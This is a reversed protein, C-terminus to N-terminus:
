SRQIVRQETIQQQVCTNFEKDFLSKLSEPIKGTNYQDRAYVVPRENKLNEQSVPFRIEHFDRDVCVTTCPNFLNIYCEGTYYAAHQKIANSVKRCNLDSPSIKCPTNPQALIEKASLLKDRVVILHYDMQFKHQFGSGDCGFVDDHSKRNYYYDKSPQCTDIDGSKIFFEVNFTKFLAFHYVQFLCFDLSDVIKKFDELTNAYMSKMHFDFANHNMRNGCEIRVVPNGHITMNFEM